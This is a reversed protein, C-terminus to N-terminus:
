ILAILPSYKSTHSYKGAFKRKYPFKQLQIDAQSHFKSLTKRINAEFRINQLLYEGTHSCTFRINGRFLINAEVHIKQM